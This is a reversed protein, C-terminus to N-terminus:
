QMQQKEFSIHLSFDFVFDDWPRARVSSSQPQEYVPLQTLSQHNIAIEQFNKAFYM